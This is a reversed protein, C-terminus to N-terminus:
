KTTKKTVAEQKEPEKTEENEDASNIWATFLKYGISMIVAGTFLGIFGQLIFGGIVGIFIVLMPVPAGKGLLIPKLFNDSLGALFFYATWLVSTLVENVSFLYILVPIMIVVPPLQLVSFIFIVLTILGAYPIGAILLGAGILLSQILAVGLIGKVVNGVTKDTVEAFEDGRSGAIKRFFKRLSEGTNAYALLIGAIIISLIMQFVAGVSAIVGEAAKKGAIFIQDQYKIILVKIDTSGAQWTKYFVEGIIPWSKVSESPPPITLTGGKFSTSFERVERIMSDLFFYSPVLIIILSILVIVLSALKAKGRLLKTISKHLPALALAFILGWLVISAFPYIIMLCWAIILLLFLIRIIIDYISGSELKSKM